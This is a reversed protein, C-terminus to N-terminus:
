KTEKEKIAQDIAKFAAFEALQKSRSFGIRSDTTTVHVLWKWGAPDTTQQLEYRIGKHEM